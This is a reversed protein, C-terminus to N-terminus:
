KVYNEGTKSLLERVQARRTVIDKARKDAAPMGRREQALPDSPGRPQYGYLLFAPITRTAM